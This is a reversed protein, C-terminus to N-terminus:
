GYLLPQLLLKFCRSLAHGRPRTPVLQISVTHTLHQSTTRRDLHQFCHTLCQRLPPVLTVSRNTACPPILPVRLTGGLASPRARALALPAVALHYRAAAADLPMCALCHPLRLVASAGASDPRGLTRHKTPAYGRARRVLPRGGQPPPRGSRLPPCSSHGVFYTAAFQRVRLTASRLSPPHAKM